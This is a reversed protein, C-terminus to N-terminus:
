HIGDFVFFDLRRHAFDLSSLRTALITSEDTCEGASRHTDSTHIQVILCLSLFARFSPTALPFYGVVTFFNSNYIDDIVLIAVEGNCSEGVFFRPNSGVGGIIVGPARDEEFIRTSIIHVSSDLVFVGNGPTVSSTPVFDRRIITIPRAIRGSRCTSGNCGTGCSIQQVLVKKFISRLLVLTIVNNHHIAGGHHIGSRPPLQVLLLEGIFLHFEIERFPPVQWWRRLSCASVQAVILRHPVVRFLDIGRPLVPPIQRVLLQLCDFNEAPVLRGPFALILPDFPIIQWLHLLLCGRRGAVGFVGPLLPHFAQVM